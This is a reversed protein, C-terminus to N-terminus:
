HALALQEKAVVGAGTGPYCDAVQRYVAAQESTGSFRPASKLLLLATMEREQRFDIVTAELQRERAQTARLKESQLLFNLTRNALELEVENNEQRAAVIAGPPAVAIPKASRLEIRCVVAILLALGAAAAGTRRRRNRSHRRIAGGILDGARPADIAGDAAKLLDSLERENM